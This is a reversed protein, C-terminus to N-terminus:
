HVAAAQYDSAVDRAIRVPDHWREVFSRSRAGIETLRHREGGLLDRMVDELSEPTANVVPLEARMGAPLFKMDGERLYCVVPKALAMLEVALSGYFGAHLQDVLIDSEAYIKRAEAHNQGEVLRLEFGLGETKLRDLTKILIATGKAGRHSPAHLVVPTRNSTPTPVWKRADVTAYAMFKARPPLVHLLDPNLAYISNMYRDCVAIRERKWADSAATYYHIM